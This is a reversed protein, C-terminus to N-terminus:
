IDWVGATGMSNNMDISDKRRKACDKWRRVKTGKSAIMRSEMKSDSGIKRTLETQENSEM